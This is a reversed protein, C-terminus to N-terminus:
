LVHNISAAKGPALFSPVFSNLKSEAYFECYRKCAMIVKKVM